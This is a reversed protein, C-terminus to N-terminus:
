YNSSPILAAGIIASPKGAATVSQLLVACGGSAYKMMEAEPLEFRQKGGHWMGITDIRTVPNVYTISRGTNEGRRIKVPEAKAYSVVVVHTEAGPKAGNVDVFVSNNEQRVSVNATMGMGKRSMTRLAAKISAGDGGNFDARGNVIAQPTYVTRSGFSSAYSYQRSTFARGGFTDKWGLYDWYDVHFGLAVIDPQKALQSLVADAPPCSSCGQSTFLEVVGIPKPGSIEKASASAMGLAIAAAVFLGSAIRMDAEFGHM